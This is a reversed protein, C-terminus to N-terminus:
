VLIFCEMWKEGANEQWTRFLNKMAKLDPEM